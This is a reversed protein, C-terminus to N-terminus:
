RERIELHSRVPFVFVLVKKGDHDMLTPEAFREGVVAATQKSSETIIHNGYQILVDRQPIQHASSAYHLVPKRPVQLEPSSRTVHGDTALSPAYYTVGPNSTTSPRSSSSPMSDEDSGPIPFMDLTCMLGLNRVNRSHPDFPRSSPSFHLIVRLERGRRGM